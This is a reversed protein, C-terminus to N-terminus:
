RVRAPTSMLKQAMESVDTMAQMDGAIIAASTVERISFLLSMDGCQGSDLFLVSQPTEVQIAENLSHAVAPPSHLRSEHTARQEEEQGAVVAPLLPVISVLVCCLLTLDLSSASRV